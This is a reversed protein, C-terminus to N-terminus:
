AEPETELAPEAPEGAADDPAADAAGSPSVVIHRFPERGDSSTEVDAHEKLLLHVIKREVSTMPDLAVPRGTRV